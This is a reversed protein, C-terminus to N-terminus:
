AFYYIEVNSTFTFVSLAQVCAYRGTKVQVILVVAAVLCEGLPKVCTKGSYGARCKCQHTQKDCTGLHCHDDKSCVSAFMITATKLYSCQLKRM